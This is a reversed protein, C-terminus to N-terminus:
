ESVGHGGRVKEIFEGTGVEHALAEAVGMGAPEADFAAEDFDGTGAKFEGSEKSRRGVAEVGFDLKIVKKAFLGWVGVAAEVGVAAFEDAEFM